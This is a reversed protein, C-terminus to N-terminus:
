ILVKSIFWLISYKYVTVKNLHSSLVYIRKKGIYISPDLLPIHKKQLLNTVNYVNENTTNFVYCNLQWIYESEDEFIKKWYFAYILHGKNIMGGSVQRLNIYYTKRGHLGITAEKENKKLIISKERKDSLEITNLKNYKLSYIVGKFTYPMFYTSNDWYLIDGPYSSLIRKFPTKYGRLKSVPISRNIVKKKEISFTSLINKSKPGNTLIKAFYFFRDNYYLSSISFGFTDKSITKLHKGGLNFVEIKNLIGDLIYIKNNAIRIAALHVFEGAGRGRGGISILYKGHKNFKHVEM